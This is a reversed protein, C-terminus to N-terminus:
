ARVDLIISPNNNKIFQYVDAMYCRVLESTEAYHERGNRLVYRVNRHYADDHVNKVSLMYARFYCGRENYNSVDVFKHSIGMDLLTIPSIKITAASADYAERPREDNDIHGGLM